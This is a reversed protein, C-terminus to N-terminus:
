KDSAKGGIDLVLEVDAQRDNSVTVSQKSSAVRTGRQSQVVTFVEVQYNGPMLNEILFSGDPAAEAMSDGFLDSPDFADVSDSPNSPDSRDASNSNLSRAKVRITAGPSLTGGQVTVRGRIAGNAPALIVRLGSIEENAQIEFTQLGVGNREVRLLGARRQGMAMPRINAKGAKLGGLKFSGDPAVVCNASSFSKESDIVTAMLM